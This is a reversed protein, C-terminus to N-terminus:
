KQGFAADNKEKWRITREIFSIFVRADEKELGFVEAFEDSSINKKELLYTAIEEAKEPSKLRYKIAIDEFKEKHKEIDEMSLLRDRTMNINKTLYIIKTAPLSHM